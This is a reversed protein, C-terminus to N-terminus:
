FTKQGLRGGSFESHGAWQEGGGGDQGREGEGGAKGLRSGVM